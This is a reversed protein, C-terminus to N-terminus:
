NPKILNNTLLGDHNFLLLGILIIQKGTIDYKNQGQHTVFFPVYTYM